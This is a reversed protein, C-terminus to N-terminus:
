AQLGKAVTREYFATAAATIEEPNTSRGMIRLNRLSPPSDPTTGGRHLFGDEVLEAILAPHHPNSVTRVSLQAMPAILATATRGLVHASMWQSMPAIDDAHLARTADQLAPSNHDAQLARSLRKVDSEAQSQVLTEAPNLRTLGLRQLMSNGSAPTVALERDPVLDLLRQRYQPDNCLTSAVDHALHTFASAEGLRSQTRTAMTGARNHASWNVAGALAGVAAGLFPVPISQAIAKLASALLPDDRRVVQNSIMQTTTYLLAMSKRFTLHYALLHPNDPLASRGPLAPADLQRAIDNQLHTLMRDHTDLRREVSTLRAGQSALQVGHSAVTEALTALNPAHAASTSHQQTVIATSAATVAEAHDLRQLAAQAYTNGPEIELAKQYCDRQTMSVNNVTIRENAALTTGLNYFASAYRPDLVAAKLYCDRKTMSVNNVTISENAALTTGLNYFASAYRPDLAAAKLYCDRQTMSVNNVTIRENAALTNGLNYFALANRPDLVAAKLYCDRKTMSNGDVDVRETATMKFGLHVFATASEPNSRVAEICIRLEARPSGPLNGSLRNRAANGTRVGQAGFLTPSGGGAAPPNVPQQIAGNDGANAGNSAQFYSSTKPIQM